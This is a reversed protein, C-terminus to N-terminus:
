ITNILQFMPWMLTLYILIICCALSTFCIRQILTIMRFMKCEMIAQLFEIYVTFYQHLDFINNNNDFISTFQSELFTMQELLHMIYFGQQLQSQMREVYYALLPIEKQGAMHTIVNKLSMGTKLFMSMHT